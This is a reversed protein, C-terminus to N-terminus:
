EAQSLVIPETSNGHSNTQAYSTASGNGEGPTRVNIELIQALAWDFTVADLLLKNEDTCPMESSWANVGWTILMEPDYKEAPTEAKAKREEREQMKLITDGDMGKMFGTATETDKKSQAEKARQLQMGSLTKFEIWQGPEHPVDRKETRGALM